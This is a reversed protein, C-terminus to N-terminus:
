RAKWPPQGSGSYRRSKMPVTAGEVELLKSKFDAWATDVSALNLHEWAAPPLLQRAQNFNTKKFDPVNNEIFAFYTKISFRISHHDCGDLKEGM